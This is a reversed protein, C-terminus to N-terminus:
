NPTNRCYFAGIRYHKPQPPKPNKQKNTQKTTKQNQKTKPTKKPNKKKRRKPKKKKKCINLSRLKLLFFETVKV